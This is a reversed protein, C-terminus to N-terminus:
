QRHHEAIQEKTLRLFRAANNYFINRKQQASLFPAVKIARVSEAIVGPWIMQDSGFMIRDGYGADVLDRLFAYFAPCPETYVISAIDVYVKALDHASKDDGAKRRDVVDV